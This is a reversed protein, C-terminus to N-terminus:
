FLAIIGGLVIGVLLMIMDVRADNSKFRFM